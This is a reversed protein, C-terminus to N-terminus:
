PVRRAPRDPRHPSPVCARKNSRPRAGALEDGGRRRGGRLLQCCGVDAPRTPGATSDGEAPCGSSNGQPVRSGDKPQMGRRQFLRRRGAGPSQAAEKEEERVLQKGATGHGAKSGGM